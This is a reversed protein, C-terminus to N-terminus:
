DVARFRCSSLPFVSFSFLLFRIHESTDTFLGAFGHLSDRLLFLLSRHCSISGYYECAPHEEQRGVLLTLASFASSIFLGCFFAM